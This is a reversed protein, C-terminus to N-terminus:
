RRATPAFLPHRRLLWAQEESLTWPMSHADGAWFMLNDAGGGDACEIEDVIGDREGEGASSGRGDRVRRECRPTDGLLDFTEGDEETTHVLGAFHGLEHLLNAALLAVVTPSALTAGDDGDRWPGLAVLVCGDPSAGDVLNGTLPALGTTWGEGHPDVIEDVLGVHLAPRWPETRGDGHENGGDEIGGREAGRSGTGADTEVEGSDASPPALSAPSTARAAIAGIAPCIAASEAGEELRSFRRTPAEGAVIVSLAGVRLRHPALVADLARRWAGEVSRAFREGALARDPHLVVLRLDIAHELADIPPAGRQRTAVLSVREVAADPPDTEFEVRYRGARVPHDPTAPLFLSLEGDAVLPESSIASRFVRAEWSDEAFRTAHLTRGDPDSLRAIGVTHEPSELVISLLLSVTEDTAEAEFNRIADTGREVDLVEVDVRRGTATEDARLPTSGFPPLAALTGVLM